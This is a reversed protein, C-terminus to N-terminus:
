SPADWILGCTQCRWGPPFNGTDDLVLYRGRHLLRCLSKELRTPTWPAPGLAILIGAPSDSM